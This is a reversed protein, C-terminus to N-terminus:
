RGEDELLQTLLDRDEPSLNMNEDDDYHGPLTEWTSNVQDDPIMKVNVNYYYEGSEVVEAISPNSSNLAEEIAKKLTELGERSGAIVVEDHWFRAPYIKLHPSNM